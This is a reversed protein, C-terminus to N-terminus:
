ATEKDMIYTFLIWKARNLMLRQDEQIVALTNGNYPGNAMMEQVDSLLSAVVMAPGSLRFTISEEINERMDAETTGYMRIDRKQRENLQKMAPEKKSQIGSNYCIAM